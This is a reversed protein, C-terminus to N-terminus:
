EVFSIFRKGAYVLKGVQGENWKTPVDATVVFRRITGSDAERFTFVRHEMVVSTNGTALRGRDNIEVSGQMLEAGEFIASVEKARRPSQSIKRVIFVILLALLVTGIILPFIFPHEAFFMDIKM